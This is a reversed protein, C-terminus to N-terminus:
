VNIEITVTLHLVNSVVFQVFQHPRRLFCPIPLTAIPFTDTAFTKDQSRRM